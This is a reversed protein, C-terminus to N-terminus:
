SGSQSSATSYSLSPVSEVPTLVGRRSVLYGQKAWRLVPLDSPSDGYAFSETPQADKGLHTLLRSLKEEGKCNPGLLVGDWTEATRLVRTCVIEKIGLARGITEVYLDPSASLLVVRHGAVLHENLRTFVPQHLRPLVWREAFAAAYEAVAARSEGRFFSVLVRQKARYDPLVRIAYLGVWVPLTALPRLKGRARAYGVAFPLFTDGRVLTGDLDFVALPRAISM